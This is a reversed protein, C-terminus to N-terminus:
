SNIQQRKKFACFYPFFPIKNLKKLVLALYTILLNLKGIPRHSTVIVIVVKVINSIKRCTSTTM